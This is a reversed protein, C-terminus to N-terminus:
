RLPRAAVGNADSTVMASAALIYRETRQLASTAAVSLRWPVAM